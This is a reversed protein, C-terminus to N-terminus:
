CEASDDIYLPQKLFEFEEIYELPRLLIYSRVVGFSQSNIKLQSYRSQGDLDLYLSDVAGDSLSSHKTTRLPSKIRSSTMAQSFSLSSSGDVKLDVAGCFATIIAAAEHVPLSYTNGEIFTKDYWRVAAQGYQNVMGVHVDDIYDLRWQVYQSWAPDDIETSIKMLKRIDFERFLYAKQCTRTDVYPAYEQATKLM